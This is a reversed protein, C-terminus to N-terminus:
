WESTFDQVPAAVELSGRQIGSPVPRQVVQLMVPFSTLPCSPNGFKASEHVTHEGATQLMWAPLTTHQSVVDRALCGSHTQATVHLDTDDVWRRIVVGPQHTSAPVHLPTQRPAAHTAAFSAPFVAMPQAHQLHEADFPARTPMDQAKREGDAAPVDSGSNGDDDEDEGDDGVDNGDAENSTVGGDTGTEAGGLSGPEGVSDVAYTVPPPNSEVIVVVQPSHVSQPAQSTTPLSGQQAAAEAPAPPLTPPGNNAATVFERYGCCIECEARYCKTHHRKYASCFERDPLVRRSFGAYHEKFRRSVDPQGGRSDEWRSTPGCPCNCPEEICYGGGTRRPWSASLQSSSRARRRRTERERANEEYFADRADNLRRWFTDDLKIERWEILQNRNGGAQTREWALSKGTSRRPDWSASVRQVSPATRSTRMCDQCKCRSVGYVQLPDQFSDRRQSFNRSM